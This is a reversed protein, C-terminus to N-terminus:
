SPEGDFLLNWAAKVEAFAFDYRNNQPRNALIATIWNSGNEWWEEAYRNGLKRQEYAHWCLELMDALKLAFREEQSLEVAIELEVEIRGELRSLAAKLEPSQWKATSPVDGTDYEALDHVLAARLLEASPNECLELLLMAVGWSHAAVTQEGIVSRTHYRRVNGGLRFRETSM